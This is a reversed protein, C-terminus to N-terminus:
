STLSEVAVAVTSAIELPATDTERRPILRCVLLMERVVESINCLIIRGRGLYRRVGLLAVLGVSGLFQFHELSVVLHKTKSSDISAIMEDRCLYADTSDRIEERMITALLVGGQLSAIVYREGATVM